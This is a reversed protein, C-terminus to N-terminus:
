RTQKTDAPGVQGTLGALTQRAQSRATAVAAIAEDAEQLPPRWKQREARPWDRVLMARCAEQV